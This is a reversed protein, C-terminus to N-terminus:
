EEDVIHWIQSQICRLESCSTILNWKKPLLRLSHEPLLQPGRILPQSSIFPKIVNEKISVKSTHEVFFNIIIAFKTYKSWCKPAARVSHKDFDRQTKKFTKALNRHLLSPFHPLSPLYFNIGRRTFRTPSNISILCLFNWGSLVRSYRDSQSETVRLGILGEIAQSYALIIKQQCLKLNNKCWFRAFRMFFCLFNLNRGANPTLLVSISTSICLLYLNVLRFYLYM